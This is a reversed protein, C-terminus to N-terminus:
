GQIQFTKHKLKKTKKQGIDDIMNNRKIDFESEEKEQKDIEDALM